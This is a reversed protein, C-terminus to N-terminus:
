AAKRPAQAHLPQPPRGVVDETLKSCEAMIGDGLDALAKGDDDLKESLSMTAEIQGAQFALFDQADKIDAAARLRAFGLDMCTRLMDMQLVSLKQLNDIALRNAKVVATLSLKWPELLNKSLDHM